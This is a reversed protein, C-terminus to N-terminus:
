VRPGSAEPEADDTKAPPADFDFGGREVWRSQKLFREVRERAGAPLEDVQEVPLDTALAEGNKKVSVTRKGNDNRLVIEYGGEIMRVEGTQSFSMSREVDSGFGPGLDVSFDIGLNVDEFENRFKELMRSLRRELDETHDRLWPRSEFRRRFDELMRDSFGKPGGNWEFTDEQGNEGRL